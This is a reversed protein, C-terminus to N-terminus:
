TLKKYQKMSGMPVLVDWPGNGDDDMDPYLVDINLVLSQLTPSVQGLAKENLEECNLEFHYERDYVLRCALDTLKPTAALIEKLSRDNMIGHTLDLHKLNSATPLSSPWNPIPSCYAIDLFQIKPMGLFTSVQQDINFEEDENDYHHYLDITPMDEFLDKSLTIYTLYQFAVVDTISGTSRPLKSLILVEFLASGVTSGERIRIDLTKLRGWWGVILLLLGVTIDLRGQYLGDLWNRQSVPLKCIVSECYRFESSSLGNEHAETINWFTGYVPLSGLIEMNKVHFALEPRGLLTRLLLLPPLTHYSLEGLYNPRRRRSSQLPRIDRGNLVDLPPIKSNEVPPVWRFNRYLLPEIIRGFRRSVMRIAMLNKNKQAYEFTKTEDTEPQETEAWPWVSATVRIQSVFSRRPPMILEFVM